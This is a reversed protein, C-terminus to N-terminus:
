AREILEIVYGDPDTIFAINESSDRDSNEFTMPGPSRRAGAGASVLADYVASLNDVALAIHGFATGHDYDQADWNYTLEFVTQSGEEGYGVFALTFRGEPFSERRLVTMGLVQTYFALSTELDRVRLMVHLMRHPRFSAQSTM